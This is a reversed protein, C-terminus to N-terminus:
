LSSSLSIVSSVIGLLTVLIPAAAKLPQLPRVEMVIGLLTVLIPPPAKVSQLPRVDTWIDSKSAHHLIAM